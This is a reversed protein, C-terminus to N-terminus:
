KKKERFVIFVIITIVIYILNFNNTLLQLVGVLGFLLYTFIMIAMYIGAMIFFLKLNIKWGIKSKNEKKEILGEKKEQKRTKKEKKTELEKVIVNRKPYCKKCYEGNYDNYGEFIGLKKKCGLCKGM